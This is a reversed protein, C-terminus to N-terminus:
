RLGRQLYREVSARTGLTSQGCGGCSAGAARCRAWSAMRRMLTWRM